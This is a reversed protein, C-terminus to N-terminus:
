QGVKSVATMLREVALDIEDTTIVMPPSFGVSHHDKPTTSVGEAFARAAIQKALARDTYPESAEFERLQTHGGSVRDFEVALLLGSGRVARVRVVGDNHFREFAARVEAELTKARDILGEDEIIELTTLAARCTVPNKEHTYHGLQLEPPIALASDALVAAIPLVGGGLAKGLVVIDPEIGFHEHAFFRGTKGLGSPIEDFILKTGSARCLRAVEPWLWMPPVICNSRMPEAIVAAVGGPADKMAREIESLMREAGGDPTWYPTAPLIDLPMLGLRPDCRSGSLALSGFGHGHYSGDLSVIMLRGTAVRAIRMAIEIADSGGTSLLLRSRGGRFKATLREGLLTAPENTFRRPSFALADLQAKIAAILRPHAYGIHHTTNGHLDIYRRGQTDELWIGSVTRLAALCPSSGTQHWFVRADREVLDGTV